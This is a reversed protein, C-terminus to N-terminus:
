EPEGNPVQGKRFLWDDVEDGGEAFLDGPPQERRSREQQEQLRALLEPLDARLVQEVFDFEVRRALCFHSVNPRDPDVISTVKRRWWALVRKGADSGFVDKIDLYLQRQTEFATVRREDSTARTM